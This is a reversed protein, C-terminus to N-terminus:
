WQPGCKCDFEHKQLVDAIVPPDKIRVFEEVDRQFVSSHCSSSDDCSMEASKVSPRPIIEVPNEQHKIEIPPLLRLTRNTCNKFANKIAKDILKGDIHCHKHVKEVRTMQKLM